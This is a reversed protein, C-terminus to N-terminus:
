VDLKGLRLVERNGTCWRQIARVASIRWGDESRQLRMDYQGGSTWMSDGSNNPKVHVAVVQSICRAEDGVGSVMHGSVLHQTADLNGLLREANKIYVARPTDTPPGGFLDGYDLTISETFVTHLDAWQREDIFYTMKTCTEIIAARDDATFTKDTM